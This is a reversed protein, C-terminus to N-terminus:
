NTVEMYLNDAKELSQYANEVRDAAIPTYEAALIGEGPIGEAMVGEAMVGEGLIEEAMIGEAMVGEAMVGEALIDEAMIGEALIHGSERVSPRMTEYDPSSTQRDDNKAALAPASCM